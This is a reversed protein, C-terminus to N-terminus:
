EEVVQWKARLARIRAARQEARRADRWAKAVDLRAAALDGARAAELRDVRVLHLGHRSRRLQWRGVPQRDLDRVFEAGFSDALDALKRGRYRQGGSFRDGLMAPDAGGELQRLLDGARRGAAADDSAVFVQTFDIRAPQAWREREREFLAALEQEGPPPVVIEQELIFAMKEAIRKRVGPDDRDLGRALGERYLVEEDIWAAVAEALEAASPPAGRARTLGDRLGSRVQDDVVIRRAAPPAPEPAKPQGGRWRDVLFLLVGVALFHVLPERAIARLRSGVREPYV